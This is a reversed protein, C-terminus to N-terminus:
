KQELKKIRNIYSDLYEQAKRSAIEETSWTGGSEYILEDLPRGTKHFLIFFWGVKPAKKTAIKHNKVVTYYEPM